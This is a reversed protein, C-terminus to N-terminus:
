EKKTKNSLSDALIQYIAQALKNIDFYAFNKQNHANIQVHEILDILFQMEQETLTAEKCFANRAHHACAYLRMLKGILRDTIEQLDEETGLPEEELSLIDKYIGLCTSIIQRLNPQDDTLELPVSVSNRNEQAQLLFFCNTTALFLTASVFLARM